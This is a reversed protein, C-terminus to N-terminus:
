FRDTGIMTSGQSGIHDVNINAPLDIADKSVAVGAV